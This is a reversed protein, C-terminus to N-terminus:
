PHLTVTAKGAAGAYVLEVSHIGKAGGRYEFYLLGAQPLPREGEAFSAKQVRQEMARQVTIPMHVPPPPASDGGGGGGNIGGKSKEVPPLTLEWDPNKLSHFILAYPQSPLANKKGNVRLSFDTPALTIRAGPAGFLAAEVVVYDETTFTQDVTPVSHGMFEAGITVAGAKAQSQYDGPTARPPMGQTAKAQADDGPAAPQQASLTLVAATFLIAQLTTSFRM